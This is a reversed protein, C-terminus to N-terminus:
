VDRGITSKSPLNRPLEPPEGRRIRELDEIVEGPHQYRKDRDKIMMMELVRCFDRSLAPNLKAPHPIQETIHKAMIVLPSGKRKFPMQGTAMHYMSAGLSYIDARIDVDAIGKAQEPSVYNPTGVAEDAKTEGRGAGTTAKALGLDCLKAVGTRDIMINDPKIDRHVLRNMEAHKMARLIQLGIEIARDEELVGKKALIEYVTDGDVFEMAFYYSGQSEGVDIARIINPHNLKGASQAESIFRRIFTKDSALSPSLVKIAVIRDLSLQRAKFVRGMGGSGIEELMEYGRIDPVAAASKQLRLIDEVAENGIFKKSILIEGILEKSGTQKKQIDLAEDLQNKSVYGRSLAIDGFMRHEVAGTAPTSRGSPTAAPSPMRASAAPGASGGSPRSMRFELVTSGVKILDGDSLPTETARAGNLFTGFRSQKDVLVPKGDKEAIEAHERSVDKGYIRVKNQTSRGLNIRSGRAIEYIFGANTGTLIRLTGAPEMQSGLELRIPVGPKPLSLGCSPCKGSAPQPDYPKDCGECRFSTKALGALIGDIQFSTMFGIEFMVKGLDTQIGAKKRRQLEELAQDLFDRPLTGNALVVKAFLLDPDDPPPLCTEADPPAPAAPDCAADPSEAADFVRRLMDYDPRSIYGKELLLGPLDLNTTGSEILGLCEDVKQVDTMGHEVVFHAMIKLQADM